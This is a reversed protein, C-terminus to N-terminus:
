LTVIEEESLSQWYRNLTRILIGSSVRVSTEIPIKRPLGDLGSDMVALWDFKDMADRPLADTPKVEGGDVKFLQSVIFDRFQGPILTIDSMKAYYTTM